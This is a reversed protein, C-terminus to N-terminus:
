RNHDQRQWDLVPSCRSWDVSLGTYRYLRFYVVIFLHCSLHPFSSLSLSINTM